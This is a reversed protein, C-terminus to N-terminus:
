RPLEWERYCYRDSQMESSLKCNRGDYWLSQLTASPKQRRGKKDKSVNWNSASVYVREDESLFKRWARITGSNGMRTHTPNLILVREARVADRLPSPVSRHFHVKTRGEIVMVEGCVLLLVPRGSFHFSRQRLAEALDRLRWPDKNSQERTGFFQEGMPTSQGARIRYSVGLNNTELVVLTGSERTANTIPRLSKRSRVSSGACLLLGPSRRRIIEVIIGTNDPSPLNKRGRLPFSLTGVIVGHGSTREVAPPLKCGEKGAVVSVEAHSHAPRGLPRRMHKKSSFM